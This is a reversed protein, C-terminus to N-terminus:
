ASKRISAPLPAKVAGNSAVEWKICFELPCHGQRIYKSMLQYSMGIAEAARSQNGYHSILNKFFTDM